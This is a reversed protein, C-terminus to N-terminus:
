GGGALTVIEVRDGDAFVTTGHDARPIVRRNLEVALFRPALELELLLAEVTMGHRFTREVDNVIIRLTATTMTGDPILFGTDVSVPNRFTCSASSPGRTAGVV